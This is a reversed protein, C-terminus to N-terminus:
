CDSYVEFITVEPPALFRIPPGWTGSGRSVYLIAQNSLQFLGSNYPFFLRSLVVFPFIQGRHTHGSIQLDFLGLSEKDVVPRHKLLITFKDRPFGVLLDREPVNEEGYSLGTPDNVGAINLVGDITIGKGRLLRFGARQAFDLAQWLGAYYEHNGTIAFKGLRPQIEQLLQTLGDLHNIQADVLDGTSIFIDPNEMKVRQLIRRLREERVIIGLHVDSIQAIKLIGVDKPIKPSKVMVRETRIDWAEFHGYVGAALAFFFPIFFRLAFSPAGIERKLIFGSLYLILRYGDIAMSSAFFLFAFGMWIYGVYATMRALSEYGHKELFWVLLPSIVMLLMFSLLLISSLITFSFADRIKTFIYYHLSSYLSFFTLFFLSM